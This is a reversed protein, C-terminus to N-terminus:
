ARSRLKEGEINEFPRPPAADQHVVEVHQQAQHKPAGTDDTTVGSTHKRPPSVPDLPVAEGTVKELCGAFLFFVWMLMLPGKAHQVLRGNAEPGTRDGDTEATWGLSGNRWPAIWSRRLSVMPSAEDFRIPGQFGTAHAIKYALEKVSVEVGTGINIPDPSTSLQGFGVFWRGCGACFISEPRM